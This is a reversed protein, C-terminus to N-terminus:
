GLSSASWLSTFKTWRTEVAGSHDYDNRQHGSRKVFNDVWNLYSLLIGLDWQRRHLSGFTAEGNTFIGNGIIDRDWPKIKRRGFM